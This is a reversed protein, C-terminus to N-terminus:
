HLYLLTALGVFQKTEINTHTRLAHSSRLNAYNEAITLNILTAALNRM